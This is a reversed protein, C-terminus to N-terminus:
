RARAVSGARGRGAPRGRGRGAGRGVERLGQVGRYDRAARGDVAGLAAQGDQEPPAGAVRSNRFDHDFPFGQFPTARYTAAAASGGLTSFAGGAAVSCAHVKCRTASGAIEAFGRTPKDAMSAAHAQQKEMMHHGTVNPSKHTHLGACPRRALMHTTYRCHGQCMLQETVNAHRTQEVGCYGSVHAAIYCACAQDANGWLVQRELVHTGQVPALQQRLARRQVARARRLAEHVPQGHHLLARGRMLRDGGVRQGGEEGGALHRVGGTEASLPGWDSCCTAVLLCGAQQVQDGVSEACGTHQWTRLM